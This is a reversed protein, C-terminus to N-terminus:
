KCIFLANRLKFQCVSSWGSCYKYCAAINKPWKQQSALKTLQFYWISPMVFWINGKIGTKLSFLWTYDPVSLAFTMSCELFLKSGNLFNGEKETFYDGRFVLSHDAIKKRLKIMNTSLLYSLIVCYWLNLNVSRRANSVTLYFCHQLTCKHRLINKKIFCSMLIADNYDFNLGFIM